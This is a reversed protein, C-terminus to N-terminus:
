PSDPHGRKMGAFMSQSESDMPITLVPAQQLSMTLPQGMADLSQSALPQTEIQVQLYLIPIICHWIFM